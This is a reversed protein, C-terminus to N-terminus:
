LLGKMESAPEAVHYYYNNVQNSLHTKCTLTKKIRIKQPKRIPNNYLNNWVEDVQADTCYIQKNRM